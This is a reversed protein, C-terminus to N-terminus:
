AAPLRDPRRPLQRAHELRRERAAPQATPRLMRVLRHAGSRLPLGGRRIDEARLEGPWGDVEAYRFGHFTFRPEWTEPRRGRAPHLPRHGRRDAAAPHGARRRGAGRRPAPHRDHGAQGQVTIRLRGVLNQGFDVITHGSPSNSIAVPAVLEIRRVPPGSPAVLTGLDRDLTRM